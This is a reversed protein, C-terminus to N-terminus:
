PAIALTIRFVSNKIPHDKTAELLKEPFELAPKLYLITIETGGDLINNLLMKVTAIRAAPKSIDPTWLTSPLSSYVKNVRDNQNHYDQALM